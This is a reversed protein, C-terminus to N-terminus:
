EREWDTKQEELLRASTGGRGSGCFRSVPNDTPPMAPIAPADIFIV